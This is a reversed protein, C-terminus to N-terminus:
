PLVILGMAVLVEKFIADITSVLVFLHCHSGVKLRLGRAEMVVHSFRVEHLAVVTPANRGHAKEKDCFPFIQM